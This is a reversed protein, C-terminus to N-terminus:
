KQTWQINRSVSDIAQQIAWLEVPRQQGYDIVTKTKGGTAVSVAVYIRDAPCTRCAYENPLDLFRARHLLYSLNANM